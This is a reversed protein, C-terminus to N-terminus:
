QLYSDAPPLIGWLRLFFLLPMAEFTIRVPYFQETKPM